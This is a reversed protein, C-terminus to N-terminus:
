VTVLNTWNPGSVLTSLTQECSLKKFQLYKIGKDMRVNPHKDFDGKNVSQARLDRRICGVAAAMWLLQFSAELLQIELLKINWQWIPEMYKWAWFFCFRPLILQLSRKLLKWDLKTWFDSGSLRTTIKGTSLRLFHTPGLQCTNIHLQRLTEPVRQCRLM